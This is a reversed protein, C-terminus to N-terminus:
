FHDSSIAEEAPDREHDDANNRNQKLKQRCLRLQDELLSRESEHKMVIWQLSQIIAEDYQQKQEAMRRYQSAQMEVCSKESQLRLIMAMAEETASAAAMREKELETQAENARKRETKVLKRLATVDFEEDENSHYCENEEYHDNVDNEEVVDHKAKVDANPSRNELFKLAGCKCSVVKPYCVEGFGCKSGFGSGLRGAKGTCSQIATGYIDPIDEYIRTQHITYQLTYTPPRVATSDRGALHPEQFQM